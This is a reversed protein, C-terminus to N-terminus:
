QGRSRIQRQLTEALESLHPEDYSSLEAPTPEAVGLLEQLVAIRGLLEGKRLGEVRGEVRAAELEDRTAGLRAAELKAAEDRQFKLRAEYHMQQEPSKSIMELIGAAETFEPDPFLRKVDELTLKDANLMFYAWQEIASAEFVNEATVDLNSLQLLHVQLDETLLLGSSTRLQFELHLESADPFMPRTLVCISIAPRLSSYPDGENMQDSYVRATYYTLRQPMGAPLTTQMEINLLRGHEDIARIDLVSLKDDENDKGLFPNRITIETIRLQRGLVANLFHITVRSHEPSGFMLKFAFDVTPRIGIVMVTGGFQNRVKEQM